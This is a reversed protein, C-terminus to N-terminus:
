LHDSTQVSSVRCPCYFIIGFSQQRLPIFDATVKWANSLRVASSVLKKHSGVIHCGEGSKLSPSGTILLECIWLGGISLVCSAAFDENTKRQGTCCRIGLSSSVTRWLDGSNNDGWWICQSHRFPFGVWVLFSSPPLLQGFPPVNSEAAGWVMWQPEIVFLFQGCLLPDWGSFIGPFPLVQLLVLRPGPRLPSSSRVGSWAPPPSPSWSPCTCSLDLEGERYSPPSESPATASRQHNM